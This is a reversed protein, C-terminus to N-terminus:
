FDLMMRLGYHLTTNEPEWYYYVTHTSSDTFYARESDDVSWYSVFPEIFFDVTDTLRGKIWLSSKLGYGTGFKQDNYITGEPLHSAVQGALFWDYEVRFGATANKFFPRSFQIGLPLYWYQIEREYGEDAQLEDNWYRYGFGFYPTFLWDEDIAVDIGGLGRIELLLDDTDSQFPAVINGENDILHGDYEIQSMYFDCEAQFMYGLQSRLTYSGRIGYLMGTEEMIDTEEYNFDSINIGFSFTHKKVGRRNKLVELRDTKVEDVPLISKIEFFNRWFFDGNETKLVIWHTNMEKIVGTVTVGDEFVVRYPIESFAPVPSLWMMGACIFILINLRINKM